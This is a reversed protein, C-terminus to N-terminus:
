LLRQVAIRAAEASIHKPKWGLKNIKETNLAVDHVDWIGPTTHTIKVGSLGMEEIVIQAVENITTYEYDPCGLNYTSPPYNLATIMGDICDEVLFFPRVQTGDGIIELEHPNAKLKNIFDYLVGHGMHGGVVNGFRFVWAQIGFLNAYASILAEGAIKSAGYLSTASPPMTEIWPAPQGGYYTASSSFVLKKIGNQRMAELVNYTGITNNKLDTGTQTMGAAINGSAALHWVIDCRSLFLALRLTDFNAIDAQFTAENKICNSESFNDYGVGSIKNLLHNGIFGASGTIFNTM